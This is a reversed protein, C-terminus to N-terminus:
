RLAPAAVCTASLTIFLAFATAVPLAFITAPSRSTSAARPPTEDETDGSAEATSANVPCQPKMQLM